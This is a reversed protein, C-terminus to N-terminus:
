GPHRRQMQYSYSTLRGALIDDVVDDALPTKYELPTEVLQLLSGFTASPRIFTEHWMPRTEIDTDILPYGAAELRAILGPLDSTVMTLHHYRDPFRVAFDGVPVGPRRAQLLEVKIGPAFRVQGSRTGMTDNDGGFVLDGGLADVFVAFTRALDPAPACVHDFSRIVPGHQNRWEAEPRAPAAPEDSASGEGAGPVFRIPGGFGDPAVLAGDRDRYGLETLEDATKDPDDVAFTLQRIGKQGDSWLELDVGPPLRVVGDGVTGGLLGGFLENARDISDVSLAVSRLVSTM